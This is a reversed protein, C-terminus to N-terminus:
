ERAEAKERGRVESAAFAACVPTYLRAAAAYMLPSLFLASLGDITYHAYIYVTAVLVLSLAPLYIALLRKDWRYGLIVCLSTFLVHSSPFAAGSLTSMNFTKQFFRVFLFGEFNGYWNTHLEPIWYKPGQVRFFVYWVSVAFTMAFYIFVSRETEARDGRAWPIWPLTAILIYYSFYSGFMLENFRPVTEFAKYFVLYPQFGFLRQDLAAFFADHSAGGFVQTSLLISEMFFPTILLQAYFTRFFSLVRGGYRREAMLLLCIPALAAIYATGVAYGRPM